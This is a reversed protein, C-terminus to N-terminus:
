GPNELVMNYRVGSAAVRAMVRNVEAMPMGGIRPVIRNQAAFALMDEMMARGGIASGTVSKQGGILRGVPMQM